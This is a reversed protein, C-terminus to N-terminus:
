SIICQCQPDDDIRLQKEEQNMQNFLITCKDAHIKVYRDSEQQAAYKNHRIYQDLLTYMKHHDGNHDCDHAAKLASTICPYDFLPKKNNLLWQMFDVNNKIAGHIFLSTTAEKNNHPLHLRAEQHQNAVFLAYIKKNLELAKKDEEMTYATTTSLLLICFLLKYNM